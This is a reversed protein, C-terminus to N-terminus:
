KRLTCFLFSFQLMPRIFNPLPLHLLVRKTHPQLPRLLILLTTAKTRQIMTSFKTYKPDHEPFTFIIHFIHSKYKFSFPFCFLDYKARMHKLSLTSLTRVKSANTPIETQIITILYYCHYQQVCSSALLPRTYDVVFFCVFCSILLSSLFLLAPLRPSILIPHSRM